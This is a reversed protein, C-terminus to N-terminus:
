ALIVALLAGGLTALLGLVVAPLLRTGRAHLIDAELDTRRVALVGIVTLGIAGIVTLGALVYLAVHRVATLPALALLAIVPGAAAIVQRESRSSMARGACSTECSLTCGECADGDLRTADATSM